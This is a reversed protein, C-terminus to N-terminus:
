KKYAGSRQLEMLIHVEGSWAMAMLVLDRHGVKEFYHAVIASKSTLGM